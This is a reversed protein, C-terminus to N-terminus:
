RALQEFRAVLAPVVIPMSSYVEFHIGDAMRVKRLQGDSDRMVFAVRQNPCVAGDFSVFRAPIARTALVRRVVRNVAPLGASIGPHSACPMGVFVVTAGRAQVIDLLQRVRNAYWASWARQGPKWWQGYPARPITDWVGLLVVVLDPNRTEIVSRIQGRWGAWARPSPPNSIDNRGRVDATLGFGPGIMGGVPRIERGLSRALASSAGLLSPLLSFAVSDGVVAVRLPAGNAGRVRIAPDDVAAIPAPVALAATLV